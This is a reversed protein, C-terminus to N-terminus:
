YAPRDAPAVIVASTPSGAAKTALVDVQRALEAYDRGGVLEPQLGAPQAASAGVRVVQAKGLKPAGTPKLDDLVKQTADSLKGDKSLLVPARVPRAMLQAASIASRWDDVDVISVAPPRTDRSLSPYVARAVGAADVIADAGGVRTTNKTAFGPFGLEQAAQTSDAPRGLVPPAPTSGATPTNSKHGCGVLAVACILLALPRM